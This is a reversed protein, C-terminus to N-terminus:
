AAGGRAKQQELVFDVITNISRLISTNQDPIRVGFCNEVCLVIELADLSDLGLGAGLLSVDEHLDEATYPLNLRTILEQKLKSIVEARRKIAASMQETM